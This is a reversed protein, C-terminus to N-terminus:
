PEIVLKIKKMVEKALERAIEARVMSLIDDENLVQEIESVFTEIHYGRDEPSHRAKIYM